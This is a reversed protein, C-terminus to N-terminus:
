SQVSPRSQPDPVKPHEKSDRRAAPPVAETQRPVLVCKAKDLLHSFVSGGSSVYILLKPTFASCRPTYLCLLHPTFASCRSGTTLLVYIYQGGSDAKHSGHGAGCPAGHAGARGCVHTCHATCTRPSGWIQPSPCPSSCHQQLPQKSPESNGAM